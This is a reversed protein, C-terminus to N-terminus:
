CFTMPEKVWAERNLDEDAVRTTRTESVVQQETQNAPVVSRETVQTTTYAPRRENVEVSHVSIMSGRSEARPLFDNWFSSKTKKRHHRKHHRHKHHKERKDRRQARCVPCNPDNCLTVEDYTDPTEEVTAVSVPNVRNRTAATVVSM